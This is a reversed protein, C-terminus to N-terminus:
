QVSRCYAVDEVIWRPDAERDYIGVLAHPHKEMAASFLNTTAATTKTKGGLLFVAISKSTNLAREVIAEAKNLDM